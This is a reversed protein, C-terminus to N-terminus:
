PISVNPLYLSFPSGVAFDGTTNLVAWATHTAPDVGYTGLSDSSDWPGPIYKMNGGRATAAAIVWVGKADRSILGFSGNQPGPNVGPTYNMSLVYIDAAPGSTVDGIGSLSLVDSALGPSAASWATEVSGVLAKGTITKASSGNTGALISMSTGKFGPELSAALTTDDSMQYSRGQPVITEKGNLSYSLSAIRIFPFRGGNSGYAGGGTADGYYDIRVRPGDITVLTYGIRGLDQILPAENLSVPTVPTYFKSSDSQNIVQHLKSKGDPSTILSATFNHDHGTFLYFVQNAQLSAMFANEANKKATLADMEASSLKLLDMGSGDGPDDPAIPGGFLNDKHAGGLLNKHAFVFAHTAAPRSSLTATIWAQQQPLTSNYFNGNVDFPDLLMLTANNYRFAYSVSKHATNIAAPETFASGVSFAKGGRAAPPNNALDAAPILATTIGAPTLNNVGDAIQPYVYRFEPGSNLYNPDSSTEHNGRLPYFGIGANYLDQAYLARTDINAKSSLNVTDGVAIVFKVGAQIFQQDVQKIIYAATTGPNYGDDIQDWQTDAIVGFSWAQSAPHYPFLAPTTTPAPQGTLGVLCMVVLLPYLITKMKFLNKAM